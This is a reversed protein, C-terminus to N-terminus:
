PGFFANWAEQLRAERQELMRRIRTMEHARFGSNGATRVPGLWFKAVAGGREVHVHPPEHGEESFFFVRYPGSRFVTPM